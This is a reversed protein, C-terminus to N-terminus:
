RRLINVILMGNSEATSFDNINNLANLVSLGSTTRQVHDTLRKNVLTGAFLKATYHPSVDCANHSAVFVSIVWQDSLGYASFSASYVRCLLYESLIADCSTSPRYDHDFVNVKCIAAVSNFTCVIGRVATLMIGAVVGETAGVRDYIFLRSEVM